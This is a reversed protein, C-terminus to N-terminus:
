VSGGFSDVMAEWFVGLSPDGRHGDDNLVEQTAVRICIQRSIDNIGRMAQAWLDWDEAAIEYAVHTAEVVPAAYAGEEPGEAFNIFRTVWPGVILFRRAWRLSSIANKIDVLARRCCPRLRLRSIRPRSMEHGEM